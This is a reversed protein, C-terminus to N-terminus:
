VVRINDSISSSTLILLYICIVDIFCSGRLYFCIVDIFCSGRLYICIVDIFCSGRLNHKNHKKRITADLMQQTTNNAKNTKTKHRTHGTNRFQGNM